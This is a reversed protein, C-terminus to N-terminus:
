FHDNRWFHHMHTLPRDLYKAHWLYAGEHYGTVEEHGHGHECGQSYIHLGEGSNARNNRWFGDCVLNECKYAGGGVMSATNDVAVVSCDDCRAVGGGREAHCNTTRIVSYKLGYAGGGQRDARCNRINLAEVNFATLESYVGGGDGSVSHNEIVCNLKINEAYRLTFAGGNGHFSRQDRSVDPTGGDFTFGEMNVNCVRAERDGNIIFRCNANAKVIRTERENFGVISVDSGVEVAQNLIYARSLPGRDDQPFLLITVNRLRGNNFVDDFDRQSHVAFTRHGQNFKWSHEDVYAKVAAQTPLVQDSSFEGGLHGDTSIENVAPGKGLNMSAASFASDTSMRGHVDVDGHVDMCGDIQAGESIKLKSGVHLTDSVCADGAVDLKFGPSSTGLGLNGKADLMMASSGAVTVDIAAEDQVTNMAFKADSQADGVRVTKTANLTPMTVPSTFDGEGQVTLKGAVHTNPKLIVESNQELGEVTLGGQIRTGKDVQLMDRLHTHKDVTLTDTLHVQDNFEAAKNVTVKQNFTSIGEVILTDKMWVDDRVTLDSMLEVDGFIKAGDYCELRGSGKLIGNFELDGEVKVNGNIDLVAEPDEVGLGIRGDKVVVPKGGDTYIALAKDFHNQEINVQANGPPISPVEEEDHFPFGIRTEGYLESTGYVNVNSRFTAYENVHLSDDVEVRGAVTLDKRFRSDEAVDLIYDPHEVGLGLKDHEFVLAAESGSAKDIRLAQVNQNENGIHVRAKTEYTSLSLNGAIWMSQRFAADNEVTLAYGEGNGQIVQNGELKFDGAVTVNSDFQAFRSVGLTDHLQTHGHIDTRGEVNMTATINVDGDLLSNGSVCLAEMTKEASNTMVSVKLGNHLTSHGMVDFDDRVSAGGMVKFADEAGDVVMAGNVRATGIVTLNDSAETLPSNIGLKGASAFIADNSEVKTIEFAPANSLQNVSVTTESTSALRQRGVNVALTGNINAQGYVDFRAEATDSGVTTQTTTASFGPYMMEDSQVKVDTKFRTTADFLADKGVHLSAQPAQNFFGIQEAQTYILPSVMTGNRYSINLAHNNNEDAMVTMKAGMMLSKDQILNPDAIMMTQKIHATRLLSHDNVELSDSETHGNVDMTMPQGDIGVTVKGKKVRLLANDEYDKVLLGTNEESQAKVSLRAGSVTDPMDSGVSLTTAVHGQRAIISTKTEIDESAEISKFWAEDKVVMTTNVLAGAAKDEETVRMQGPGVVLSQTTTKDGVVATEAVTLDKLTTSGASLDHTIDASDATVSQAVTLDEGVRTSKNLNIAREDSAPTDTVKVFAVEDNGVKMMTGTTTSRVDLKASPMDTGLGIRNEVFLEGDPMPRNSDGISAGGDIDLDSHAMDKNIALKNNIVNNGTKSLKVSVNQQDSGILLDGDIHFDADPRETKVGVKGESDIMFPTTDNNRDDVRLLADMDSSTKTIHLKANTSDKNIGVGLRDRAEVHDKFVADEADINSKFTAQGEVDLENLTTKGEVQANGTVRSEDATLGNNVMAGQRADLLVDTHFEGMESEGFGAGFIPASETGVEMNTSSITDAVAINNDFLGDESVCLSGEIATDGNVQMPKEAGPEVTLVGHAQLSSEDVTLKDNVSLSTSTLHTQSSMEDGDSKITVPATIEIGQEGDLDTVRMPDDVQNFSSRILAEFDDGTPTKLDDFAEILSDRGQPEVTPISDLDLPTKADSQNNM